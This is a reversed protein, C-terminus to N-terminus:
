GQGATRSGKEYARVLANHALVYLAYDKNRPKGVHELIANVLKDAIDNLDDIEAIAKERRAHALNEMMETHTIEESPIHDKANTIARKLIDEVQRKTM